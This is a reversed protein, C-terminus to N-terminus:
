TIKYLHLNDEEEEEEGVQEGFLKKVYCRRTINSGHQLRPIPASVEM